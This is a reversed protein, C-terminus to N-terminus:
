TVSVSVKGVANCFGATLSAAAHLMAPWSTTQVPRVTVSVSLQDSSIVAVAGMVAPTIVLVTVTNAGSSAFRLSLVSWTGTVTRM